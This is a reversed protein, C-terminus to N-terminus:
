SESNSSTQQGQPTEKDEFLQLSQSKIIRAEFHTMEKNLIYFAVAKQVFRCTINESICKDYKQKLKLMDEDMKEIMSLTEFPNWLHKNEDKVLQSNIGSGFAYHKLSICHKYIKPESHLVYYDPVNLKTAM